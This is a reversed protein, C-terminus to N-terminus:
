PELTYVDITEDNLSYEGMGNIKYPQEKLTTYKSKFDGLIMIKNPVAINLLKKLKPVFNEKVDNKRALCVSVKLRFKVKLPKLTEQAQNSFEYLKKFVANCESINEFFLLNGETLQQSTVKFNQAMETRFLARYEAVKIDTDVSKSEFAYQEFIKEIEIDYLMAFQKNSNEIKIANKELQKNFKQEFRRNSDKQVKDLVQEFEIIFNIVYVFLGAMILMEIAAVALTFDVPIISLDPKYILNQIAYIYDFVIQIYSPLKIAMLSLIFDIMTLLALLMLCFQSFKLSTITSSIAFKILKYM